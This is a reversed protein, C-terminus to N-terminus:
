ANSPRRLEQHGRLWPSWLYARRPPPGGRKRAASRRRGSHFGDREGGCEGGDSRPELRRARGEHRSLRNRDGDSWAGVSSSFRAAHEGSAGGCRWSTRLAHHDCAGHYLFPHAVASAVAV